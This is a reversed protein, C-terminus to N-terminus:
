VLSDLCSTHVPPLQDTSGILCSFLLYSPSYTSVTTHTKQEGSPNILRLNKVM